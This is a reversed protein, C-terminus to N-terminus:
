SFLERSKLPKDGLYFQLIYRMLRLAEHKQQQTVLHGASLALLTEGHVKPLHQYPSTGPGVEVQYWYPKQQEVSRGSVAEHELIPAYGLAQLLGLEFYRLVNEADQGDALQTLTHAYLSFLEPLPDHRKLLRMILENLYFGCYLYKGGLLVPHSASELQRLVKLEGRGAWSALLPIFPQLIAKREGKATAAGKAIVGIRGEDPTFIELM